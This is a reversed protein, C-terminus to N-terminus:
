GIQHNYEARCLVTEEDAILYRFCLLLQCHGYFHSAESSVSEM